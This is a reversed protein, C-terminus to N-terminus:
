ASSAVAFYISFKAWSCPNISRYSLTFLFKMKKVSKCEMNNLLNYDLLCVCLTKLHVNLKVSSTFCLFLWAGFIKARFTCFSSNSIAIFESSAKIWIWYYSCKFSSIPSTLDLHSIKLFQLLYAIISHLYVFITM